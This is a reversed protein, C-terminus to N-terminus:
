PAVRYQSMVAECTQREKKGTGLAKEVMRIQAVYALFQDTTMAHDHDPNDPSTDDSRLHAEIIEAGAVVALAGTHTLAPLSHDSFGSFKWLGYRKPRLVRLNLQDFQAPYASVCHLLKVCNELGHPLVAERWLRNIERKSCMGTSILLPRDFSVWYAHARIFEFDQAEFSSVKFGHVYDAVMSIDDPLYVTCLYALGLTQCHTSLEKHWEHPWELYHRYISEYGDRKARGRGLAMARADSTWQFKVADAKVAKADDILSLMKPLQADGCSGAEAIVYTMAETSM